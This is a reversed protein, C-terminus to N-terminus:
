SSASSRVRREAVVKGTKRQGRGAPEKGKRSRGLGPIVKAILTIFQKYMARPLQSLSQVMEVPVVVAACIWNLVVMYYLRPQSQVSRQASAALVVVDEYKNELDQLRGENQLATITSKKEYRRMARSLADLEPHLSKRLEAIALASAKAASQDITADPLSQDRTAIGNAIHKELEEIRNILQENQAESPTSSPYQLLEVNIKRQLFLTRNQVMSMLHTLPRVEAAMMFLTLNFNSVLGESSRSLQSRIAHLLWAAFAPCIFCSFLAILEHAQLEAKAAELDQADANKRPSTGATSKPSEAPHLPESESPDIFSEDEEEIIPTSLGTVRPESATVSQASRYWKWPIRVSWNLFVAALIILSIDGLVADGGKFFMGGLAPLLALAIASSQWHSDDDNDHNTPHTPGPMLLEDASTKLSRKTDSLTESFISSRRRTLSPEAFTSSRGLPRHRLGPPPPSLHRSSQEAFSIAQERDPSAM